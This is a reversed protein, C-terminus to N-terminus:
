INFLYYIVIFNVTKECWKNDNITKFAQLLYCLLNPCLEEIKKHNNMIIVIFQKMKLNYM